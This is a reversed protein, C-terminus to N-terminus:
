ENDDGISEIIGQAEKLLGQAKKAQNVPLNKITEDLREISMRLRRIDSHNENIYGENRCIGWLCFIICVWALAIFMEM